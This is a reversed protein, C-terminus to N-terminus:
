GRQIEKCSVHGVFTRFSTGDRVVVFFRCCWDDSSRRLTSERFQSRCWTTPPYRRHHSSSFVNHVASLQLLHCASRFHDLPCLVSTISHVASGFQTNYSTSLQLDPCLARSHERRRLSLERRYATALHTPPFSEIALCNSEFPTYRTM